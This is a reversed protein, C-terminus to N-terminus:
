FDTNRSDTVPISVRGSSGGATANGEAYPTSVPADSNFPLNTSSFKSKEDVSSLLTQASGMDPPHYPQDSEPIPKCRKTLTIPLNESRHGSTRIPSQNSLPPPPPSPPLSMLAQLFCFVPLVLGIVDVYNHNISENMSKERTPSTFVWGLDCSLFVSISLFVYLTIEM